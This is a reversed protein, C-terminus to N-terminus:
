TLLMSASLDRELEICGIKREEGEEDEEEEEEEEVTAVTWVSGRGRKRNTEM